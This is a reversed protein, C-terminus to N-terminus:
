QHARCKGMRWRHIAYMRSQPNSPQQPNLHCVTLHTTDRALARKVTGMLQICRSLKSRICYVYGYVGMVKYESEVCQPKSYSIAYLNQTKKLIAAM